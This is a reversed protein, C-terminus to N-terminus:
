ILLQWGTNSTTLSNQVWFTGGARNWYTQGPPATVVGEPDVVGGFTLTDQKADLAAQLDIQNALIGTIDGWVAAGGIGGETLNCLLQLIVGRAIREDELCTFKNECAQDILTALDCEAM